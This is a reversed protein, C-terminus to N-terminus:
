GAPVRRRALETKHIPRIRNGKYLYWARTFEAGIYFIQASYYVWILFAIAAGAPGFRQAVDSQSLYFSIAWQGILFLVAALLAGPIVAKWTLDVDPLYNYLLMLLLFVLGLSVAYSIIQMVIGPIGLSQEIQSIFQPLLTTLLMAALLIVAGILIIFFARLRVLLTDTIGADKSKQVGWIINLSGQMDAVATTAAVILLIAGVFISIAGGETLNTNEVISQVFGAARQSTWQSLTQELQGSAAQQGYVLGLVTIAIVIIPAISFVAYYALSASLKSVNHDSYRTATEKWPNAM